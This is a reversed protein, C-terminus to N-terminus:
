FLSPLLNEFFFFFVNSIFLIPFFGEPNYDPKTSDNQKFPLQPWFFFFFCSCFKIKKKCLESRSDGGFCLHIPAIAIMVKVREFM